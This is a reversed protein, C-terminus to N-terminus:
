YSFLSTPFVVASSDSDFRGKSLSVSWRSFVDCELQSVNSQRYRFFSVFCAPQFASFVDISSCLGSLFGLFSSFFLSSCSFSVILLYFDFVFSNVLQVSNSFSFVSFSGYYFSVSSDVWGFSPISFKGLFRCLKWIWFESTFLNNIYSRIRASSSKLRGKANIFRGSKEFLNYLGIDVRLSSSTNCNDPHLGFNYIANYKRSFLESTSFFQVFVLSKNKSFFSCSALSFLSGIEEKHLFGFGRVFNISFFNYGFSQVNYFLRFLSDNLFIEFSKEVKSCDLASLVGVRGEVLKLCSSSNSGIQKVNRLGSFSDNNYSDLLVSPVFSNRNFFPILLPSEFSFSVGAVVRTTASQSGMFHSRSDVCFSDKSNSVGFFSGLLFSTFFSDKIDLFSFDFSSSDFLVTRSCFYSFFRSIILSTSAFHLDTRMSIVPLNIRFSQFSEWLFRTRNSIFSNVNSTVPLIDVIRAGCLEISVAKLFPDFFDLSYFSVKEWSRYSGSGVQSVLAGVPCLDIVNAVLPHDIVLDTFTSIVSGGGRGMMGLSEVSLVDSLFRICRTCHICRTMVTKVFPSFFIDSVTRKSFSFRSVDHGFVFSLDQLDCRGAQDCVPCDLPHNILLFEVVSQRYRRVVSSNTSIEMGDSILTSCSIVPKISNNLEVLCMRCNGAVNLAEHYCFRPVNIKLYDLSQLLTVRKTELISYFFSVGNISLKNLSFSGFDFSVRSIPFLSVFFSNYQVNSIFSM